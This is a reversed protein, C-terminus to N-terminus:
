VEGNTHVTGTAVVVLESRVASRGASGTGGSEIRRVKWGATAAHNRRRKGEPGVSGWALAQGWMRAPPSTSTAEGVPV